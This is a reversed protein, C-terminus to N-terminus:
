TTGGQRGWDERGGRERQERVRDGQGDWLWWLVNPSVRLVQKNAKSDGENALFGSWWAMVLHKVTPEEFSLLSELHLQQWSKGACKCGCLIHNVLLRRSPLMITKVTNHCSLQRLKSKHFHSSSSKWLDSYIVRSWVGSYFLNLAICYKESAQQICPHKFQLSWYHNKKKLHVYQLVMIVM